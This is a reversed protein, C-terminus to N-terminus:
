VTGLRAVTSNDLRGGFYKELAATFEGGGEEAAHAFLTMSSHFKLNDPYGFIQGISKKKVALVLKTCERLRLGLVPHELYAGAEEFSSIAYRVATPSSGLGRIQPFIFWMWHSRKQGSQLESLVQAYVGAQTEVFRGLDYPDIKGVVAM